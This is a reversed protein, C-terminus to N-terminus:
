LRQKGSNNKPNKYAEYSLAICFNWSTLPALIRLCTRTTRILSVEISPDVEALLKWTLEAHIYKVTNNVEWEIWLLMM